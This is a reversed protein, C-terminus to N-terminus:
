KYKYFNCIYYSLIVFDCQCKWQHSQTNTHKQFSALCVPKIQEFKICLEICLKVIIAFVIVIYIKIILLCQYVTIPLDFWCLMFRLYLICVPFQLQIIPQKCMFGSAEMVCVNHCRKTNSTLIKLREIILELYSDLLDRFECPNHLHLNFPLYPLHFSRLHLTRHSLTKCM